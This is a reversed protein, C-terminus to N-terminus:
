AKKVFKLYALPAVIVLLYVAYVLFDTFKIQLGLNLVLIILTPVVLGLVVSLVAKEIFDFDKKFFVTTISFGAALILIASIIPQVFDM